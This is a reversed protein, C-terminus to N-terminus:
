AAEKASRDLWWVALLAAEARGDDKVREFQQYSKPFRETAKRRSDNKDKGLGMDKKWKAPRVTVYPICSLQLAVLVGYYAGGFRFMGGAGCKPIACVEEVVAFEVDRSTLFEVLRPANIMKQTGDGIIPMDCTEVEGYENTVAVAGSFGPHIGSIIM